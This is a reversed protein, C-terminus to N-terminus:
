DGKRARSFMDLGDDSSKLYQGYRCDCYPYYSGGHFEVTEVRGYKDCQSCKGIGNTPVFEVGGILKKPYRKEM